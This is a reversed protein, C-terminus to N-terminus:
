GGGRTATASPSPSTAEGSGATRETITVRSSSSSGRRPGFLTETGASDTIEANLGPPEPVGARVLLLRLETEKPSWVNPRVLDLAESLRRAGRRGGWAEVVRRLEALPMERAAAEPSWRGALADGIAVLEDLELEAACQAWAVAPEVVPV